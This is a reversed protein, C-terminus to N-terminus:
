IFNKWLQRYRFEINLLWPHRDRLSSLNPPIDKEGLVEESAKKQQRDLPNVVYWNNIFNIAQDRINVPSELFDIMKDLNFMEPENINVAFLRKQRDLFEYFVLDCVYANLIRRETWGWTKLNYHSIIIEDISRFSTIWKSSPFAASLDYSLIDASPSEVKIYKFSNEKIYDIEKGESIKEQFIKSKENERNLMRGPTLSILSQYNVNLLLRTLKIVFESGSRPMTAFFINM